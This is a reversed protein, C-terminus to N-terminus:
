KSITPLQNQITKNSIFTLHRDQLDPNANKFFGHATKHKELRKRALECYEESIDIGIYNRKLEYAAVCTTGSGCM